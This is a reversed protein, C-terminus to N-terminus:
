VFFSTVTETIYKLQEDSLESHMPLSLVTDCLIETNMLEFGNTSYEAYALQKYLPVPYYIMNPINKEKLYEALEDRKGNEIRLTYQHFVHTSNVARKPTILGDINAFAADYFNAANNRRECYGDLLPLKINLVV